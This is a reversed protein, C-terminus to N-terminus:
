GRRGDDDRGLGVGEWVIEMEQRHASKPKGKAIRMKEFYVYAAYFVTSTSGARPGKKGRFSSLQTTSINKCTPANLQAYLDRCFQAQTLGPTRLHASIKKRIEDATDFIPVSDTEEGDLYIESLDPTNAITKSKKAVPGSTSGGAAAAAKDAEAKQRKKVDPMKLGAIERQKFWAWANFFSDTNLGDHAGSKQLFTNLSRNSSGIASCFEGKKMIGGDLLQNIKKRVQNCNQDVYMGDVDIDSLDQKYNAIDEELTTEVKRKRSGGAAAPKAAAAKAKATPAAGQALANPLSSASVPGKGDVAVPPKMLAPPRVQPTDAKQVAGDHYMSRLSDAARKIEALEEKWYDDGWAAQGHPTRIPPLRVPSQNIRQSADQLPLRTTTPMPATAPALAPPKFDM